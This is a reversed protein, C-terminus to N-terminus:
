IYINTGPRETEREAARIGSVIDRLLLPRPVASATSVGRVLLQPQITITLTALVANIM